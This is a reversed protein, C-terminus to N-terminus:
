EYNCKVICSLVGVLMLYFSVFIILDIEMKEVKDKIEIYLFNMKDYLIWGIENKISFWM